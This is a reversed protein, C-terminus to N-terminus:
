GCAQLFRAVKCGRRARALNRVTLACLKTLVSLYDARLDGAVRSSDWM